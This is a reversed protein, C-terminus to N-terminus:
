DLPQDNPNAFLAKMQASMPYDLNVGAPPIPMEFWRQYLARAEGSREMKAITDDAIRKFAVDGRRFMCGYVAPRAAGGVIAFAQAGNMNRASQAVASGPTESAVYGTALAAHLLPEDMVFAAARGSRVAEVSDGHTKAVVIHMNMAHEVNWRRLMREESTGATTVVTRGALDDFDRVPSGRKVLMRVGFVFISDSFTVDSERERTHTATSCELDVTGNQVLTIRNQPTVILERVRLAPLQLSDRVAGAIRQAIEYSYGTAHAGGAMYSFPVAAERVGIVITGTDRIKRLTPSELEQAHAAGALICACALAGCLTVSLSRAARAARAHHRSRRAIGFRKLVTEM